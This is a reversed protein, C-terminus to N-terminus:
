FEVNLAPRGAHCEPCQDPTLHTTPYQVLSHVPVGKFDIDNVRADVLVGIAHVSAGTSRILDILEVLTRGTILLDDVIVCRDGAFVEGFQRFALRGTGSQPGNGGRRREVWVVRDAQLADRVGFAVPIGGSAPGVLTCDPLLTSVEQTLRLVRSLGVTLMRFYNLRRLMTPLQYYVTTHTGNPLVFHGERLAGTERLLELMQQRAQTSVLM